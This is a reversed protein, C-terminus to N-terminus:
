ITPKGQTLTFPGKATSVVKRTVGDVLFAAIVGSPLGAKSQYRKKFAALQEPFTGDSPDDVVNVGYQMNIELTVPLSRIKMISM